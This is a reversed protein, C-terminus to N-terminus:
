QKKGSQLFVPLGLLGVFAAVLTADAQRDYVVAGYTMAVLGIVAVIFVIEDKGISWAFRPGQTRTEVAQDEIDDDM